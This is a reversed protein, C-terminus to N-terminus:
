FPMRERVIKRYIWGTWSLVDRVVARVSTYIDVILGNGYLDFWERPFNYSWKHCRCCYRNDAFMSVGFMTQGHPISKTFKHGFLRCIFHM